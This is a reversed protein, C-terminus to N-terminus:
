TKISDGKGQHSQPFRQVNQVSNKSETGRNKEPSVLIFAMDQKKKRHPLSALREEKRFNHLTM